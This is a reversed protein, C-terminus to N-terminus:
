GGGLSAMIGSATLHDHASTESPLELRVSRGGRVKSFEYVLAAAFPGRAVQM